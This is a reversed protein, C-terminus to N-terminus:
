PIIRNRSLASQWADGAAYREADTKARAALAAADQIKSLTEATQTMIYAAILQQVWGDIIPVAKIFALVAAM